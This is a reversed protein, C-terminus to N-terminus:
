ASSLNQCKPPRNNRPRKGVIIFCSNNEVSCTSQATGGATELSDWAQCESRKALHKGEGRRGKPHIVSVLRCTLILPSVGHGSFADFSIQDESFCFCKGKCWCSRDELILFFFTYSYIHCDEMNCNSGSTTLFSWRM